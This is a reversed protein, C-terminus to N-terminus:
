PKVKFQGNGNTVVSGSPLADYEAQSGVKTAGQKDAASLITDSGTTDMGTKQVGGPAAPAGPQPTGDQWKPVNSPITGHLNHSMIDRGTYEEPLGYMRNITNSLVKLKTEEEAAGGSWPGLLPTLTELTHRFEASQHGAGIKMSNLLTRTSAMYSDYAAAPNDVDMGLVNSEIREGQKQAFQGISSTALQNHVLDISRRINDQISGNLEEMRAKDEAGKTGKAVAAAKMKAYGPAYKPDAEAAMRMAEVPNTRLAQQYEPTKALNQIRTTAEYKLKMQENARKLKEQEIAQRDMEKEVGTLGKEQMVKLMTVDKFAAAHANIQATIAREQAAGAETNLKINRDYHEMTKEYISTQYKQLDEANKTAAQWQEYHQKAAETDNAHFAQMVATASNLATIMPRKSFGSALMAFIMAASGWQQEISTHSPQTYPVQRMQPPKLADEKAGIAANGRETRENSREMKETLADNEKNFEKVREDTDDLPKTVQDPTPAGPATPPPALAQSPSVPALNAM